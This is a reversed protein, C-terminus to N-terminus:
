PAWVQIILTVISALHDIYANQEVIVNTKLYDYTEFLRMLQYILEVLM